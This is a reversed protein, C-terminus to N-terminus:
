SGVHVRVLRPEGAIGCTIEYNITGLWRAHDEARLESAGDRGLITVVDGLEVGTDVRLSVHDMSVTGIIERAVGRVLASGVGRGVSRRVGDAYGLPILAIRTPETAVFSRCYGTSEGAALERLDAVHSRLELVPELDHRAAGIGMPDMGYTAVGCRVADFHTDPRRLTAASNAAHAVVSHEVIRVAAVFERFRALQINLFAPDEDDATAFHTMVGELEVGPMVRVRELAEMADSMPVGWRGMGTDVKLHVRARRAARAGRERTVHELADVMAHSLVTFSVDLDIARGISSADLPGMILIPVRIGIQRLHRAESLTAVCLRRAGAAVAVQAIHDVDHGYANAKVVAWLQAGDTLRARLSVINRRYAGLDVRVEARPPAVLETDNVDSGSM